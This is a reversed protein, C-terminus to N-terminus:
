HQKHSSFRSASFVPIKRLKQVGFIKAIVKIALLEKEDCMTMFEFM